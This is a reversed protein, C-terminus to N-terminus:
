CMLKFLMLQIGVIGLASCFVIVAKWVNPPLNKSQKLAGLFIIVALAIFIGGPYNLIGNIVQEIM